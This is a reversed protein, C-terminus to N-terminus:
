GRSPFRALDADWQDAARALSAPTTTIDLNFDMDRKRWGDWTSPPASELWLFFRVTVADSEYNVLGVGINPEITHTAPWTHGAADPELSVANGAAASRLWAGLAQAEQVLLAPEQFTWEEDTSRARGRIILWNGDFSDGRLEPFQYSIPELSVFCGSDADRIEM